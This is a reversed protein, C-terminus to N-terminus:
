LKEYFDDLDDETIIIVSNNEGSKRLISAIQPSVWRKMVEMEKPPRLRYHGHTDTELIGREVMRMLFPKAWEPALRYRQKGGARRCIEKASIFQNRWSKLFYYIELEEADMAM